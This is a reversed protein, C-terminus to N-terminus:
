AAEDMSGDREAADTQKSIEANNQDHALALLLTMRTGRGVRSDVRLNGGMSQALARAEYAGIGFGGDKTSEFPKFLQNAVFAETMGCGQDSIRIAIENGQRSATIRIPSGDTTAEIANQLLHNLITELRAADAMAFMGPALDAEIPYVLRKGHIVSSVMKEVDLPEIKSNRSQSHQSLRKLMDNMKDVSSKLTAIMDAQWEPNTAHKEANRSLISLQSVLNKIDHMVFAFRRNFQEFQRNEALAQQSTAEALYSALQRGVVRMMDLDEWDLGRSIPPRALVAIGALRGFHVLPVVAWARLEDFLWQPIARPDCRSDSGNRVDDMVLIHASNEFFPITHSNGAYTPVDATPWNWRAQLVLRSEDDRTLLLGAPSDFIDALSKIVREHFPDAEQSPFGITDAFRMWESRYDYRHQFFHKAIFVNLLARFRGSPMFIMAALSMAFILTIQTMRAYDGGVLQIATALLIMALLYLGIAILSVSQFTVSRSLRIRWNSNRRSGTAIVPVLLAMGLGRMAILEHQQAEAIYGITYLNLDYTWMAALAAMPLSLGWRADPATGIYLNHVLVLAGIAFLMRILRASQQAVSALPAYELHEVAYSIAGDVLLQCLLALMLAGYIMIITRPQDNAGSGRLLAYLFGLWGMNRLTEFISAALSAPGIAITTIAWLSTVGLAAILMMQQRNRSGYQQYLWIALAAFLFGAAAHGWFGLAALSSIM